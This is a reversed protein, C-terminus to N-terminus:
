GILPWNKDKDTILMEKIGYKEIPWDIGLKPDDWRLGSCFEPLYRGCCHYSFITDDELALFGHAFGEPIYVSLNEKDDLIISFYQMYTKSGERMDVAVDFIKGKIVRVLKAQSEVTQYHLGRISGKNTYLDSSETFELDLGNEKYANAEYHKEYVGRFDEFKHPKIIVLGDFETNFFEFAM